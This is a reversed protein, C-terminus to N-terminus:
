DIGRRLDVLEPGLRLLEAVVISVKGVRILGWLRMRVSLMSVVM